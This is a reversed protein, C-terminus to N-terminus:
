KRLIIKETNEKVEKNKDRKADLAKLLKTRIDQTEEKDIVTADEIKSMQQEKLSFAEYQQEIQNFDYPISSPYIPQQTIDENKRFGNFKSYYSNALRYMLAIPNVQLRSSVRALILQQLLLRNMAQGQYEITLTAEIDIKGSLDLKLTEGEVEKRAQDLIARIERSDEVKHNREYLQMRDNMLFNLRSLRSRKIGINVDTFEEEYAQKLIAIKEKYKLAFRKVAMIPIKYGWQTCLIKHVEAETYWRAFFEIIEDTKGELVSEPTAFKGDLSGMKRYAVTRHGILSRLVKAKSFIEQIEQNKLGELLPVTKSKPNILDVIRGDSCKYKRYEHNKIKENIELYKQYQETNIVGPPLGNSEVM